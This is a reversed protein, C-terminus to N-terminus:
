FIGREKEKYTEYLEDCVCPYTGCDECPSTESKEEEYYGCPEYCEPCRAVDEDYEVNCCDTLKM